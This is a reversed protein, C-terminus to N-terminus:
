NIFRPASLRLLTVDIITTRHPQITLTNVPSMLPIRLPLYAVLPDDQPAAPEIATIDIAFDFVDRLQDIWDKEKRVFKKVRLYFLIANPSVGSVATDEILMQIPVTGKEQQNSVFFIDSNAIPIPLKDQDRLRIVVQAHAHYQNRPDALFNFLGPKQMTRASDFTQETERDYAAVARQWAAPTREPTELALKLMREVQEQPITGSVIGMRDGTHACRYPIGCPVPLRDKGASSSSKLEYYEPFDAKAAAADLAAQVTPWPLFQVSEKPGIEFHNFNLNSASVRVVGDSGDEHAYRVPFEFWAADAQTGVIVFEQVKYDEVM